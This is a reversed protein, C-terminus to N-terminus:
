STPAIDIWGTEATNSRVSYFIESTPLSSEDGTLIVCSLTRYCEQSAARSPRQRQAANCSLSSCFSAEGGSIAQNRIRNKWM